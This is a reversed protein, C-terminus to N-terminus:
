DLFSGGIGGLGLAGAVKGPTSTAAAKAAGLPNGFYFEAGARTGLMKAVGKGVGDQMVQRTTTGSDNIVQPFSRVVQATKVLRETAPELPRGRGDLYDNRMMQDKFDKGMRRAMTRPNVEDGRMVGPAELLKQIRFKENVAKVRSMVVDGSEGAMQMFKEEWFDRLSSLAEREAGSSADAIAGNLQRIQDWLDKGDLRQVPMVDSMEAKGALHDAKPKIWSQNVKRVAGGDGTANAVRSRMDAIDANSLTHRGKISAAIDAFEGSIEDSGKAFDDWTLKTGPKLGFAQRTNSVVTDINPNAIHENFAARGGPNSTLSEEAAQQSVSGREMGRSLKIGTDQAMEVAQLNPDADRFLTDELRNSRLQSGGVIDEVGGAPGPAGTIGRTSDTVSGSRAVLNDGTAVGQALGKAVPSAAARAGRAGAIAAAGFPLPVALEGAYGAMAANPDVAMRAAQQPDNEAMIAEGPTMEGRAQAEAMREPDYLGRDSWAGPAMFGPTLAEVAFGATDQLAGAFSRLAREGRGQKLTEYTAQDVPEWNQGERRVAYEGNPGRAYDVM